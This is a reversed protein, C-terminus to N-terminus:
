KRALTIVRTNPDNKDNAPKGKNVCQSNILSNFVVKGNQIVVWHAAGNYTYRVPAPEKIKSLDSFQKKTVEYDKGTVWKLFKSASPIFCDSDIIHNNIANNLITIYDAANGQIGVCYLYCMALCGYKGIADINKAVDKAFSQPYIM